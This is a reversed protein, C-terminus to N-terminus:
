ILLGQQENIEDAEYYKIEGKPYPKHKYKLASAYIRKQKKNGCFYIYRHKSSRIKRKSHDLGEIHRAHKEGTDVDTRQATAGTYIFNCAQYVYGQHSMATDAYSIVIKPKPLLSLCKSIFFSASNKKNSGLVLRNLEIVDQSFEDGCVGKCLFPSAPMGFTCVGNLFGEEYLGFAYIINPLRKAYHRKLIWEYTLNSAIQHVIM